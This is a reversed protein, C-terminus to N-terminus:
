LLGGSGANVEPVPSGSIPIGARWCMTYFRRLPFGMVNFYCGEIRQVFLAARGQIAYAGAKDGYHEVDLYTGIEAESLGAFWVRTREMELWRRGDHFLAVATWVEHMRGSLNRLITRAHDRSRPKGIIDGELIVATDASVVVAEHDMENMVSAGKELTVRRIFEEPTENELPIEEIHPPIVEPELGIMRLLELRRPSTSALVIKRKAM